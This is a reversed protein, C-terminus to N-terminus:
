SMQTNTFCNSLGIKSRTGSGFPNTAVIDITTVTRIWKGEKYFTNRVLSM